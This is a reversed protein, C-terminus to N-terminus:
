PMMMDSLLPNNELRDEGEIRHTGQLYLNLRVGLKLVM